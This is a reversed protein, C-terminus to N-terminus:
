TVMGGNTETLHPLIRKDMEPAFTQVWRFITSHDVEFGLEAMMEELERYSLSYRCYWRVNLLIIDEQFHRWKFPEASPM